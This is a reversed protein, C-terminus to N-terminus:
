HLHRSPRRSRSQTQRTMRLRRAQRTARSSRAEDNESAASLFRAFSCRPAWSSPPSPPFGRSVSPGLAALLLGFGTILRSRRHLGFAACAVGVCAAIAFPALGATGGDYFFAAWLGYVAGASALATAVSGAAMDLRPLTDNAPM